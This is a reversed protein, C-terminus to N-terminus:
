PWRSPASGPRVALWLTYGALVLAAVGPVLLFPVALLSTLITSQQLPLRLVSADVASRSRLLLTGLLGLSAHALLAMLLPRPPTAEGLDWILLHAIAAFVFTSGLWTLEARRFLQALVFATLALLAATGTHLGQAPFGPTVLAMALALGATVGAIDRCARGLPHAGLAAIALMSSELALMFGWLALNSPAIAWLGWLSAAVFLSLGIYPLTPRRRRAYLVLACAGSLGHVVAAPWPTEIGHCATTLLAVVGLAGSGLAYSAAHLREGARVLGESGAACLVMLIALVIGSSPSALQEALWGGPAAEPPVALPGWSFQVVLLMALALCPLAVTHAYPMRWRFALISLLAANSLCVLLLPLPQPWALVVASLMFALGTFAVATGATRLGGETRPLGRRVLLGGALIPVSALAFPEALRPLAIAITSRSLLFGLAVFLTFSSLGLFVFLANAQRVELSPNESRAQARALGAVVASCALVHCAVPVCALVVYLIPHEENLLRPVILQSGAAGVIALMFLWRRDLPGPLVGVGILDRGALRVMGLSLLIATIKFTWELFTDAHGLSPDALVLLNLPVLLLAIVLLGRSTSELKWHHLTYEGASFLAATICAFILFPFYPLSELSHWLTIILAISCGVILLGGALEGWLINREEMFAALVNTLSRRPRPPAPLVAPPEPPIPVAPAPRFAAPPVPAESIPAVPIVEPIEQPAAVAIPTPAQVSEELRRVLEQAEAYEPEPLVGSLALRLFRRALDIIGERVALRAAELAIGGHAPLEPHEDLLRRYANLAHSTMGAMELLRAVALLTPAKLAARQSNNLRRYCALAERRQEPPLDRPHVGDGLLEELQALSSAPVPRPPRPLPVAPEPQLARRRAKLAHGVRDATEADLDGHALLQQITRTTIELDLLEQPITQKRPPPALEEPPRTNLLFRITGAIALWIFHGAVIIFALAFITLLGDM